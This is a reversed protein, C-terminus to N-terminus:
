VWCPDFQNNRTRRSPDDTPLVDLQRFHYLRLIEVPKLQLKRIRQTPHVSTDSAAHPSRSYLPIRPTRKSCASMMKTPARLTTEMQQLRRYPQTHSTQSKIPIWMQSLFTLCLSSRCPVSVKLFTYMSFPAYNNEDTRVLCSSCYLQCKPFYHKGSEHCSHPPFSPVVFM